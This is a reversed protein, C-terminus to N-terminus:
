LGIHNHFDIHDAELTDIENDDAISDTVLDDCIECHVAWLLPDTGVAVTYILDELSKDM